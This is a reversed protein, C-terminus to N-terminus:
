YQVDFNWCANGSPLANNNVNEDNGNFLTSNFKQCYTGANLSNFNRFQAFYTAGTALGPTNNYNITDRYVVTNTSIDTIEATAQM